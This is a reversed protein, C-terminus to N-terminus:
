PHIIFDKLLSGSVASIDHQETLHFVAQARAPLESLMHQTLREYHQIFREIQPKDMLGTAASLKGLQAMKQQLKQEQLWRWESVAQMSPAKLMILYDMRSFLKQYDGALVKNVYNRWLGGADEKLELANIPAVLERTTQPQAGVCWGELIIIDVPAKVEDWDSIPMVDDLAKNFRPLPVISSANEAAAVSDFQNILRLGLAIDHTGPVGRTQLLPHIRQALHTRQARSFYLDDISLQVCRLGAGRTLMCGLLAALTSKGTGQAGNVGLLLPRTVSSSTTAKLKSFDAAVRQALPFYFNRSLVNFHPPLQQAQIFEAVAPAVASWEFQMQSSVNDIVTDAYEAM